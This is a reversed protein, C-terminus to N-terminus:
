RRSKWRRGGEPLAGDARSSRASAHRRCWRVLDAAVMLLLAGGWVAVAVWSVAEGLTTVGQAESTALRLTLESHGVPDTERPETAPLGPETLEDFVPRELFTTSM